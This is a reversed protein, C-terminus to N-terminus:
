GAARGPSGRGAVRGGPRIGPRLASFRMSRGAGPSRRPRDALKEFREVARWTLLLAGMGYLVLSALCVLPFREVAEYHVLGIDGAVFPRGSYIHLAEPYSILSLWLMYPMMGAFFLDSELSPAAPILAVYGANLVLMAFIAAFLARTSNRACSSIWVGLAATFWCFVLLELLATLVGLPFLGGALLGVAWMILLGLVLRWSSWVAGRIKALVIERGTLLTGTLSTWTDQERESTLSVAAASAVSLLLLVFLFTSTARLAGNLEVRPYTGGSRWGVLASFAPLAADFLYCGLLVGFFLAVPRSRLWTFGGGAAFREKWLMPDDAFCPPRRSRTRLASAITAVLPTRKRKPPQGGEGGRLPRLGVIALILCVAGFTAQLAGMWLLQTLAEDAGAAWVRTITGSIMVDYYYRQSTMIEWVHIPNTLLVFNNVPEVWNLPWAMPSLSRIMPPLFLWTFVIAYAVLIAERPRPALVSVLMSVGALFLILTFTGAYVYTVEWPDLGGLLALLCVMPVGMLVVVGVHLLRAALKGLVIETSSMQSALLYHLTKRQAEDAIVGALLAPVLCLLAIGQAWALAAFMERAFRSLEEISDPRVDITVSQSWDGGGYRNGLSFLLLLGYVLRAVYYRKRRATTILEFRFVPGLM